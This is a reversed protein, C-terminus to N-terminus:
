KLALFRFTNLVDEQIYKGFSGDTLYDATAADWVAVKIAQNNLLGETLVIASGTSLDTLQGIGRVVITGNTVTSDLLVQGSNLDISVSDSGTKNILKIGGNYNRLALAQGGGNMDITPTMIGPQGSWCDLFHAEDAGALVITGPALVCQEIFGKVYVLNEIVCGQVRSNGDLTGTIKADYYTCDTVNAAADITITTRDKGLGVFVYDTMNPATAGITLDGIIHITDFGRATAIVVADDLNNVPQLPTGNPYTSGSFPSTVDVHIVNQFLGYQLETLNILGASNSPAVQVTGLNTVTLINNNSGTLFVKYPTGTEEFTITYGNIIEIIRAYAIGDLVVETNHKLIQPQPAGLESASLTRLERLFAATDLSYSVGSIFTLDAQYVTIVRTGWDVTAAM